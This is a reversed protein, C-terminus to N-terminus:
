DCIYDFRKYCESYKNAIKIRQKTTPHSSIYSTLTEEKDSPSPTQYDSTMRQMITSFSNPDIRFELMKKFSFIDAESEHHKSYNSSVVLSGLGIGIDGFVSVDGVVTMVVISIFTSEILTQLTHRHVIHGMEHLIISDMEDQSKCLQIFRDTLIIDGSPLAMANALSKNANELLRFHITYKFENSADLLAFKKKVHRRISDQKLQSIKTEKFLYEDLIKMTNTAILTNTKAPLVYAIRESFFPIGWKLFSFSFVVVVAISMLVFGFRSEFIHISSQFKARQNYILDIADNDDTSFMSGDELLIKRPVNGLRTNITLSGIVGEYKANDEVYLIFKNEEISLYATCQKSSEQPYYKGEIMM